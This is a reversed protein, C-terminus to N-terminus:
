TMRRFLHNDTSTFSLGIGTAVRELDHTSALQNRAGIGDTAHINTEQTYQTNDPLPRQKPSIVWGSILDSSIVSM